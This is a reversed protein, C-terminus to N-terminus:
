LTVVLHHGGLSTQQNIIGIVLEIYGGNMLGLSITSIFWSFANVVQPVVKCTGYVVTNEYSFESSGATKQVDLDSPSKIWQYPGHECAGASPAAPQQSPTSITAVSSLSLCQFTLSFSTPPGTYGGRQFLNSNTLQSSSIGLIHSFLISTGFWWGSFHTSGHFFISLYFFMLSLWRFNRQFTPKVM